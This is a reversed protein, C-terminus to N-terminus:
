KKQTESIPAGAKGTLDVPPCTLQFKKMVLETDETSEVSFSRSVGKDSIIEQFNLKLASEVITKDLLSIRTQISKIDDRSLKMNLNDISSVLFNRITILNAIVQTNNIM